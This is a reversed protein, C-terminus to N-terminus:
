AGAILDLHHTQLGGQLAGMLSGFRCNLHVVLEKGTQLPSNDM